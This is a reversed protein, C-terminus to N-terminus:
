FKYSSDDYTEEGADEMQAHIVEEEPAQDFLEERIVKQLELIGLAHYWSSMMAAQEARLVHSFQDCPGDTIHSLQRFDDQLGPYEPFEAYLEALKNAWLDVEELHNNLRKHAQEHEIPSAIALRAFDYKPDYRHAQIAEVLPQLRAVAPAEAVNRENNPNPVIMM